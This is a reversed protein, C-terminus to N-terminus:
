QSIVLLRFLPFETRQIPDTKRRGVVTTNGNNKGKKTKNVKAETKAIIRRKMERARDAEVRMILDVCEKYKKATILKMDCMTTVNEYM